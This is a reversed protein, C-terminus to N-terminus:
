KGWNGNIKSKRLVIDVLSGLSGSSLLELVQVNAETERAIWNRIEIAVLSDLGLSSVTVTPDMDDVSIGLVESLKVVLSEYVLQHATDKSDAKKLSQHLPVVAGDRATTGASAEAAERIAKFKADHAWFSDISNTLDLGTICQGSCSRDLDGKIAAALLALVESEDITEGGINKLVEKQRSPDTDALYGVDSVAALDISTGPLGRSKRYEMFGDLFVNAASYAAQGRNGVVGAVSSLAIFFDLPSRALAYHLNWAGDVKSSIVANFDDLTMNEYLMDKLVMAGHVVGRIPPLHSLSDILTEVSQQQSVDCPKVIINTGNKALEDILVQVKSDIKGSRSVLVVNRAGKTSLWKAMSRGLGGTGGILIYTADPNLLASDTRPTLAKVQDSERPVVVLKGINRGTQLTRFATELESIGYTTLPTIPRLTKQKFLRSIDELLRKMLQPRYKAVKTLDVSAFSVNYEFPFMDLRSNKTIDAKGIEIFRGFPALCQWTERLLDGALSNIVVDVGKNNTARRLAPGFSANRSYFIRDEPISHHTKLFEKKDVSGVTVYIDAGAMQALMIAAQGVGGAGAHILVRDGPQLKGLDFLGYYATCFVVPLTGATEFPLEDPIEVVSTSPTRAYTSYGGEVLAMVRKGVQIEKVNKGIASVVGSCEIGIYPQSLQGMSVVVDKFNVGTAKVEIEVQDDGLPTVIDDEFYLSDLSGPNQVQVKFRRGHQTFPQLTLTQGNTENHVFANTNDDPVARLVFLQSNETKFELDKTPESGDIPWLADMAAIIPVYAQDVDQPSLGLTAIKALTESPVSRTLGVTMQADPKDSRYVWLINAGSLLINKIADFLYGTLHRLSSDRTQVIIINKGTFDVVDGLGFVSPRSEALHSIVDALEDAVQASDGFKVIVVDHQTAEATGKGNPTAHGNTTTQGNLDAHHTLVGNGNGNTHGNSYTHNHSSGNTISVGNTDGNGNSLLTHGNTNEGRSHSDSSGNTISAGNIDGNGNAPLAEELPQWQFKYCLQRIDENRGAGSDRIPTMVLGHLVILPKTSKEPLALLDFNTPEPIPLNPNGTGYVKVYDGPSHPVDKSITAHKIMTPMYLTDLDMNGHGLIPWVLHLLGDLFAPHITLKPEFGKPMISKTDRIYLDALSHHSDAFCNELGQFTPGYGAGLDTLVQYLHESEVRQTSAQEVKSIQAQIYKEESGVASSIADVNSDADPRVAILGSCHETFGRETDWSYIRFEDWVDSSGRTGEAYRRLSIITEVDSEDSLVLASGVIVERLQFQSFTVGRQAALRQAAELAMILYGALPYVPVGQMKHERLWPIDDLRVINRWTPELDNSYNAVVGLVDNRPVDRTKHKRAIRPEHWYRNSHQWPYRPLDTLFSCDKAGSCPFNIETMNLTAGRVYAAAATNLISEAADANRVITPSYSIKSASSGLSKLTELIPGKLASHPGIEILLNPKADDAVLASLADPFLVPSTLNQVWYSADLESPEAVRALVSSYFTAKSSISPEISAIAALYETSVNKMHDSHYAVDIKLRRNFIQREQLTKELEDIAPVDGSVTVSGPSNVCAVTAYGEHLMKLLPRITEPSAGVAIMTGKLTPFSQKLLQTMQGRRYALAMAAEMNYVGAAYAASIEGSSHGVVSTPRISWSELLNVLAIQLATCAPQSLHPSNINSEARDKRLEEILSFEAGLDRLVRDAQKLSEAFVPYEDILGVGMEAWQAGQGTFVFGITPRGQVRAANIKAQALQIGLNDLSTASLAIRYSLHSMKNGVTYAFNGFLAKEFVEPRQEFYVGFDKVKTQLSEKDSASILILKRKPDTHTESDATKEPTEEAPAKELVVHANTGGFGYNSISIYKKGRPWPRTSTLVKMNWEDLPINPNAKRFDANPLVLQRDLMMASKIISIIGSAGELHGVNSKVSGIYLPNRPTRGHGLAAHAAAAEIPDGVKTGTGHMEVFGCEAPDLHAEQYVRRILEEQASGNPLTIGQTRGDQNVGSNAIVARIPDKDRLAADLPKLLVVGAGEGRAFGSVAREDFAYTKGDDNFLQSLSMSVFLDPLINLRCGAVLAEKSEGNRLSQVAYHLAVLSSSCATDVTLSPGRLNFFYSIRNSQLSTACGTAQYMPITEVDRVNHQEYDAVNGGVFVGVQRGSLSEKPIGASELAEYSCELLLRQQPDMSIAEQASVNFFPADFRAPDQDLFYGGAQNFTGTKSPNAHHYAEFSFRDKPIPSWGSRGRTCLEWLDTPSSVQGPLRCAYGIIAIPQLAKPPAGADAFPPFEEAGM